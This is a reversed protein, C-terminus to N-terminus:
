REDAHMESPLPPLTRAGPRLPQPRPQRPPAESGSVKRNDALGPQPRQPPLRLTQTQKTVSYKSRGMLRGILVPGLGNAWMQRLLTREEDTWPVSVVHKMAAPM